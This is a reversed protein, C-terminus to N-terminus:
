WVNESKTKDRLEKDIDLSQRILDTLMELNKNMRELQNAIDPM